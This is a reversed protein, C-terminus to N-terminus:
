RVTRGRDFSPRDGEKAIADRVGSMLEKRRIIERLVLDIV